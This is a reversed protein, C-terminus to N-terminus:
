QQTAMAAVVVVQWRGKSSGKNTPQQKITRRGIEDNCATMRGYVSKNGAATALM